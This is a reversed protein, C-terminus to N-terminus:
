WYPAASGSAAGWGRAAPGARRDGRDRGFGAAIGTSRAQDVLWPGVSQTALGFDKAREHGLAALPLGALTLIVSLAAAVAAAGLWPRRAAIELARRMLPPRWLALLALVVLEVALGGLGIWRQPGSFDAARDLQAASFYAGASVHDPDVLGGHPGIAWAAIEAVAVAAVAVAAVAIAPRRIPHTRAAM